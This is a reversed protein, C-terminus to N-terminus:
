ADSAGSELRAMFRDVDKRVVNPNWASLSNDKFV